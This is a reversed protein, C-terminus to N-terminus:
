AAMWDSREIFTSDAIVLGDIVGERLAAIAQDAHCIIPEEHRNFSTNILAPMGTKVKWKTIIEHMFPDEDKYIFQPRATKDVHVVAPCSQAFSNSCDYTRKM